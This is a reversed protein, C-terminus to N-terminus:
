EEQAKKIIPESSTKGTGKTIPEIQKLASEALIQEPKKSAEPGAKPNEWGEVMKQFEILQKCLEKGHKTLSISFSNNKFKRNIMQDKEWSQSVITLHAYSMGSKKALDRLKNNGYFIDLMIDMYNKKMFFRYIAHQM